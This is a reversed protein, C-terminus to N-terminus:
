VRPGGVALDAEHATRPAILDKLEQWATVMAERASASLDIAIVLKDFADQTPDDKAKADCVDVWRKADLSAEVSKMFRDAAAAELNTM